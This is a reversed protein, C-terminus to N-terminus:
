ANHVEDFALNYKICPPICEVTREWGLLLVSEHMRCRLLSPITFKQKRQVTLVLRAVTDCM